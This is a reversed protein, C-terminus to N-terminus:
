FRPICPDTLPRHQWSGDPGPPFAAPRPTAPPRRISWPAMRPDRTAIRPGARLPPLKKPAAPQGPRERQPDPAGPMPRVSGAAPQGTDHRAPRPRRAHNEAPHPKRDREGRRSVAPPPPIRHVRAPAPNAPPAGGPPQGPPNEHATRHTAPTAAHADRIPPAAPPEPPSPTAPPLDAFSAEPRIERPIGQSCGAHSGPFAAVPARPRPRRAKEQGPRSRQARRPQKRAPSAPSIAACRAGEPQGSERGPATAQM